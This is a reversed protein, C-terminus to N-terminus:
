LSELSQFGQSSVLTDRSSIRTGPSRAVLYLAGTALDLFGTALFKLITMLLIHGIHLNCCRSGANAMTRWAEATDM